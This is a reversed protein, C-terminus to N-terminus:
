RTMMTKFVELRRKYEEHNYVRPDFNEWELLLAPINLEKEVAKQILLADGAVTRCGVHYRNLLGDIHMRRCMDIHMPIKITLGASLGAGWDRSMVKYPDEQKKDFQMMVASNGAILAIGLECALHELRPDAHHAFVEGLVRPSGKPVAAVGKNVLEQVEKYLTNAVDIAEVITEKNFTLSSMCMWINDHTPSLPLPDSSHILNQVRAIANDFKSRVELADWVEDDTVEFGVTDEIKKILGRMSKVTMDISRNVASEGEGSGRDHCTDWCYVPM